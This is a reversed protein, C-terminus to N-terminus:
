VYGPIITTGTVDISQATAPIAVSGSPGIASIRNNTIVIDGHDIVEDGKMTVIRAGRLAIVGVPRDKLATISVDMRTAAYAPKAKSPTDPKANAKTLNDARRTSYSIAKDAGALDYTFFSRGLSWYATKAGATWGLFDGGGRTLRRIPVPAADASSISITPTVGGTIPVSVLYIKNDVDVIAQDGDPSLIVENAPNPRPPDALNETYGTVKVHSRQDTGDWRMSVVGDIPDYIYIRSTDRTFHPRGYYNLPAIQTVAGGAAPLWVLEKVQPGPGGFENSKEIREERPGRVVVLRRGTPDYNLDEYFATQRTLREAKGPRDPAIRWIDGGEESWTVFAVFKGDPSWAPSHEGLTSTTLRHPRGNPLDMLYLKDLATFVLQKGNPSPRANRIQKVTLVSDDVPYEFKVLPGMDVQIDASFPIPTANGGPVAVSWLKGGYTIVIAKSDPTWAYGPLLDRTYRSESDDRQIDRAVFTEDGSSLDRLRLATKNDLRSAYALWKGDPSLAPRMAGGVTTTRQYTKGTKRDYVGLQWRDELMQNYKFGGHKVAAYIYRNDPAVSAGLYNNFPPPTLPDPPGSPAGTGKGTIAIGTGGNKNVLVLDYTSGLIGTKTRSVVIYKGDPTWAPSIYQADKDKTIARPNAGSPEVSWLNEYGSRDSVFVISKGDPSFRPQGDFGTGSTIRTAKGGAIPLTYLDGVLDFVLTKGDPSVDLSMWTGEDTTFAAQRTPLIPLDSNPATKKSTDAPKDQARIAGLPAICLLALSVHRANPWRM